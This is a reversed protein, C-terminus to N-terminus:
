EEEIVKINEFVPDKINQITAQQGDICFTYTGDQHHILYGREQMEQESWTGETGPANEHYPEFIVLNTVVPLMFLFLLIGKNTKKKQKSELLYQVRCSLVNRNEAFFFSSSFRLKKQLVNKTIKENMEVLTSVYDLMKEQTMSRTVKEDVRMELVIQVQNKLWYVPLFWWYVITLLNMLQKIWIDHNLIHQLEHSLIHEIEEQSYSVNPLLIVKQWGLVMPVEILDTKWVPYDNKPNVKMFDSIHFVESKKQIIKQLDFMRKLMYLSHLSTAIMGVCWLIMIVEGFRHGFVVSNLLAQLPNMLASFAITITFPFEVPLFLRGWIIMALLILLDTRFLFHTRKRQILVYFLLIMGLAMLLTIFISSTSIHM